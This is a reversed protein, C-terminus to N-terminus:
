FTFFSNNLITHQLTPKIVKLESNSFSTISDSSNYIITMTGNSLPILMSVDGAVDIDVNDDLQNGKSVWKKILLYGSDEKYLCYCSNGKKDSFRYLYTNANHKKASIAKKREQEFASVAKDFDAKESFHLICTEATLNGDDRQESYTHDISPKQEMQSIFRDIANQANITAFSSLLLILATIIKNM